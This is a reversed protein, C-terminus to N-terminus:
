TLQIFAPDLLNCAASDTFAWFVVNAAPATVPRSAPIFGPCTGRRECLHAKSGGLDIIQASLPLRSFQSVGVPAPVPLVPLGCLSFGLWFSGGAM